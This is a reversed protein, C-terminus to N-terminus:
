KIAKELETRCLFSYIPGYDDPALRHGVQLLLEDDAM